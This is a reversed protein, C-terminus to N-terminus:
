ASEEEMELVARPCEVTCVGCGKCYDLDIRRGDRVAQVTQDPCFIRCNDCDNCVGCNFCRGAEALAEGPALAELTEDFTAAARGPPLASPHRRAAVPFYDTNIDAFAVTRSARGAREAGQYIELSVAPGPGVRCDQLARAVARPGETFLTHLALAAQKGSGIADAVSNAPTVPDGVYAIPHQGLRLACHSLRLTEAEDAPRHWFAGVEAGIGSFVAAFHRVTPAQGAPVARVRGDGGPQDPRMPQLTLRVGGADAAVGVPALLTEIRVGEAEAAAIEHIFAPMDRRRRRYVIVPRAGLRLLTRAVDIATNGGGIVAVEGRPAETQGTQVRRLFDLGDAVRDEGPIHLRVPASFGVGIIVADFRGAAEALFAQDVARNCHLGVGLALIREIERALVAKPLRYAPIGWRLVGGPEAAAEFIEVSVGLRALFCAAALGAPGAGAIAVKRGLDPADFSALPTGAALAADGLYRELANIAIPADLQARNCAAECPHFCVRGCVAPLPNERAITQWAEHLRGRAAFMEVRAIDIGAPCAAACPATKPRFVPRAFRWAGTRNAETTTHSVPFLLPPRSWASM